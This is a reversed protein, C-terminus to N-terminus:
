IRQSSDVAEESLIRLIQELSLSVLNKGIFQSPINKSIHSFCTEIEDILVAPACIILMEAGHLHHELQKMIALLSPDNACSGQSCVGTEKNNHLPTAIEEHLLFLATGHFSLLLLLTPKSYSRYQVPIDM